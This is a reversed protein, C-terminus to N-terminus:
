YFLGYNEPNTEIAIVKEELAMMKRHAVDKLITVDLVKIRPISYELLTNQSNSCFLNELIL